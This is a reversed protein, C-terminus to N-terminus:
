FAEPHVIGNEDEDRNIVLQWYSIKSDNEESTDGGSKPFGSANSHEVSEWRWFKDDDTARWGYGVSDWNDYLIFPGM